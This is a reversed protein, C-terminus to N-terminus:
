AVVKVIDPTETLYVLYGSVNPYGAEALAQIYGSVQTIHSPGPQGTKYDVVVTFGDGAIVRDPRLTRGSPLLLEGEAFVEGTRGFVEQYLHHAELRALCDRIVDMTQLGPQEQVAPATVDDPLQPSVVLQSLQHHVKKGYERMQDPEYAKWADPAVRSIATRNEWPASLFVKLPEADAYMLSGAKVRHGDPLKAPYWYSTQSVDMGFSNRLINLALAPIAESDKSKPPPCSLVYLREIARTFAVYNLNALDLAEKEKIEHYVAEFRTGELKDSLPIRYWPPANETDLPVWAEKQSTERQGFYPYIVVRFELGKAKHITMIRVADVEEPTNIAWKHGNLDWERLFSSLSNLGKAAFALVRDLFYQCYADPPSTLRCANMIDECLVYLPRNALTMLPVGFMQRSLVDGTFAPVVNAIEEPEIGLIEGCLVITETLRVLDDPRAALRLWSILIRVSRANKLLLSESSIVDIGAMALVEAIRSASLNRRVLIAIDSWAFGEEKLARLTELVKGPFPDGGDDDPLLFEWYVLGGSRNHPVEQTLGTYVKQGRPSLSKAYSNFFLNNFDVIERSSRYNAPLNNNVAFYRFLKQADEFGQGQPCQYIDPLAEFIELESNRWRYISQKGDGVVLNHVQSGENGALSSALLPVLNHWQAVSTDQFEDLLFHRFRVGLRSFVYPAPESLVVRRILRNFDSIHLVNKNRKVEEIFRDVSTLLALAHGGGAFITSLNYEPISKCIQTMFGTVEQQIATFAAIIRNDTKAPFWKNENIAALQYTNMGLKNGEVGDMALSRLWAGAGKEKYSFSDAELGSDIILKWAQRAWEQMRQGLVVSYKQQQRAFGIIQEPSIRALDELPLRADEKFCDEANKELLREIDWGKEDEVMDVLTNELIYTLSAERGARGLLEDVADEILPATDLEVGFDHSIHMDFTFTSVVRHMFSDITGISFDSYNHLILRLSYLARLKIQLDPIVMGSKRLSELLSVKQGPNGYGPLEALIALYLIIRQKLEAAAKNTFTIGLVRRFERPENLVVGLFHLVLTYTKGSGASSRYITLAM